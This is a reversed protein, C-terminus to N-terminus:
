TAPTSNLITTNSFLVYANQIYLGAGHTSDSAGSVLSNRITCNTLKLSGQNIYLAGGQAARQDGSATAKCGDFTCGSLAASSSFELYLAGGAQTRWIAWLPGARLPATSVRAATALGCAVGGGREVGPSRPAARVAESSDGSATATCGDFTCGSLTASSQDLILAGGAQARRLAWSEPATSM